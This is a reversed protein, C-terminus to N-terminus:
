NKLYKRSTPFGAYYRAISSLCLPLTLMGNKKIIKNWKKAEPPTRDREDGQLYAGATESVTQIHSRSTYRWGTMPPEGPSNLSSSTVYSFRFLPKLIFQSKPSAVSPNSFSSYRLFAVSPNSFSNHHLHLALFTPSHARSHSYSHARSMRWGSLWKM